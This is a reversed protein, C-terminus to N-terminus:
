STAVMCAFRKSAELPLSRQAAVRSLESGPFTTATPFSTARRITLDSTFSPSIQNKKRSRYKRRLLPPPTMQRGKQRKPDAGVIKPNPGNTPLNMGLDKSFRAPVSM